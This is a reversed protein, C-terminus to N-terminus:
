EDFNDFVVEPLKEILSLSEISVTIVSLLLELPYRSNSKIENAYQNADDIIGTKKVNQDLCQQDMVWEVGSKGNVVFNYCDLPINCITIFKNYIITSKDVSTGKMQFKMKEVRFYTERDSTNPDFEGNKFDVPFYKADEFNTHCNALLHGINSIELFKKLGKVAPIRPIEIMLNNSFKTRYERSHLLGYVYYFINEKTIEDNLYKKRFLQLSNESIGDFKKYKDEEENSKGKISDYLSIPFHQGGNELLHHCPISNIMLTSFSQDNAGSVAISQNSTGPLRMGEKNPYLRFTQGQSENLERNYYLMKKTFPRYLTEIICNKDFEYKNKNKFDKRMSRTWKIKTPNEKYFENIDRNDELSKLEEVLSNYHDIYKSINKSLEIRSFNCAWVDRNTAVGHSYDDFIRTAMKNKKDGLLPYNEINPDRQNLWDNYKNPTITKWKKNRMMDYVSVGDRLINLKQQTSLGDLVEFYKIKGQVTSNPNKVLITVASGTKNASGFINQGEGASARKNTIQKNIDGRLNLVFIKSFEEQLCKRMGDMTKGALWGNNTILAIIGGREGIRDSAWRIARIYSDYVQGKRTAKSYRAYTESLRETLKPYETGVNSVNYPPNGIIVKIETDKQLSRRSNNDELIGPVLEREGYTQFTDTLCIGKFPTYQYNTLEHYVVEINIAAVYYPLLMLENAHLENEYKHRIESKEILESQLLRTIFTGTGVFPDMIHVDRSGLNQSFEQTLIENVSHIIFDVVEIPTYVIGLSQTAENFAARFFKDYLTVIVKQRGELTDIGSVINKVNEYFENLTETETDLNKSKLKSIIKELAKSVPNKKTFEYNEFLADFVPKTILHQALMEIANIESINENLSGRIDEVFRDFVVRSSKDTSLVANIREIYKQAIKGVNAAWNDWYLRNGCKNVIKARMAKSFEDFNLVGQGSGSTEEIQSEESGEGKVPKGIQTNPPTRGKPLKDIKTVVEIRGGFNGNIEYKNITADFREDHARLANLVEWVVKYGENEDLVREPEIHSPVTVPLIIYGIEKGPAKRMVRGVAQVIDVHSRRPHMFLIADLSPVDVGESLCRANSLIHCKDNEVEGGLWRLLRDREKSNFTGDVHEVICNLKDKSSSESYESNRFEEVVQTFEERILESFKISACFMIARRIHGDDKLFQDGNKQLARYCGVIKTANDLNLQENQSETLRRQVSRGVIEEDMTFVVVKYDSLLDQSVATGFNLTHFVQGFLNEDDMSCLESSKKKALNKANETYIRPTATMYLRKKSKIRNEDHVAVFNSEDNDSLTIGTTRHAEDCITIDFSGLGNKQATEVTSISQYTCFIVRITNRSNKKVKDLLKIPDTTVPIALDQSEFNIDDNERINRVRKGKGVQNDSCVAVAFIEIESDYYWERITQSMLALSPVLFLVSGGKGVIKEAIKLSTFTKGTGCAMLLKGRDSQKFGEIVDTIAKKQYDRIKKKQQINIRQEKEFKEEFNEWDINSLRFDEMRIRQFDSRGSVVNEAEISWPNETTDIFILQVFPVTSSTADTIFGDIQKRYIKTEKDYCKCQIAAFGSDDSFEGVLDIGTDKKQLSQEKAWDSYSLIRSFQSKWIADSRLFAISFKEFKDGVERPSKSGMRINEIIRDCQEM